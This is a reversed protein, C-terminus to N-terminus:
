EVDSHNCWEEKGRSRSVGTYSLYPVVSSTKMILEGLTGLAVLHVGLFLLLFAVTSIVMWEQLSEGVLWTGGGLLLGGGMALFPFSMGGFWLGPRSGFGTIMKVTIIDLAVRWVRGIGYKSKGFRRAHHHVPIEAIRAGALTAMAPIFRHLEGYLAVNKIVCSRYAKLSCGNDHIPVGTMVRIIWNAIRSPIKRSVLKDQRDVRWGCVVDLDQRLLSVLSPIDGPDNQLDGDMSVIVEGCAVEFGAAMAATQGANRRFRLVKVRSDTDHISRLIRFTQDQSGDDVFIIEHQGEMTECVENISKYLPLISEEENYLPIVISLFPQERSKRGFVKM